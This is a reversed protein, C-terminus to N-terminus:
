NLVRIEWNEAISEAYAMSKPGDRDRAEVTRVLVMEGLRNEEYLDVVFVEETRIKGLRKM